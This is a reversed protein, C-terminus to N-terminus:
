MCAQSCWFVVQAAILAKSLLSERKNGKSYEPPPQHGAFVSSKVRQLTMAAPTVLMPM